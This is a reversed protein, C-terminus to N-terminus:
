SRTAASLVTSTRFGSSVRKAKHLRKRYVDQDCDLSADIIGTFADLKQRKVAAERRYGPLDSFAMM